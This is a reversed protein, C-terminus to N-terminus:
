GKFLEFGFISTCEGNNPYISHYGTAGEKYWSKPVHRIEKIDPHARNLRQDDDFDKEDAAMDQRIIADWVPHSTIILPGDPFDKACKEFHSLASRMDTVTVDYRSADEVIAGDQTICIKNNSYKMTPQYDHTEECFKIKSLDVNSLRRYLIDLSRSMLWGNTFHGAGCVMGKLQQMTNMGKEVKVKTVLTKSFFRGPKLSMNWEITTKKGTTLVQKFPYMSCFESKTYHEMDFVNCKMKWGHNDLFHKEVYEKTICKNREDKPLAVWNDDGLIMAFTLKIIEVTSYGVSRLLSWRAMMTNLSNRLSVDGIGSGMGGERFFSPKRNGEADVREVVTVDLMKNISGLINPPPNFDKYFDVVCENHERTQNAEFSSADMEVIIGDGHEEIAKGISGGIEPATLGASIVTTAGEPQSPHYTDCLIKMTQHYFPNVLSAFTPDAMFIGRFKNCLGKAPAAENKVFFQFDHHVIGTEERERIGALLKAVAEPENRRGYQNHLWHRASSLPRLEQAAKIRAEKMMYGSDKMEKWMEKLNITQKYDLHEKGDYLRHIKASAISATSQTNPLLPPGMLTNFVWPTSSRKYAAPRLKCSMFRKISTSSLTDQHLKTGPKLGQRAVKAEKAKEKSTSVRDDIEAQVLDQDASICFPVVPTTTPPKATEKSYSSSEKVNKDVGVIQIDARDSILKDIEVDAGFVEAVTKVANGVTLVANTAKESMALERKACMGFGMQNILPMLESIWEQSRNYEFACTVFAVVLSQIFAESYWYQDRIEASVVSEMELSRMKGVAQRFSVEDPKKGAFTTNKAYKVLKPIVRYVANQHDTYVFIGLPGPREQSLNLTKLIDEPPAETVPTINFDPPVACEELVVSYMKTALGNQVVSWCLTFITGDITIEHANTNTMWSVDRHVYPFSNGDVTMKVMGDTIEYSAGPIPADFTHNISMGRRETTEYLALAIEDPTFYYISHNWLLAQVKKVNKSDQLKCWEINENLEQHHRLYDKHKRNRVVDAAGLTPNCSYYTFLATASKARHQEVTNIARVVASARAVAGGVDMVNSMGARYLNRLADQEM